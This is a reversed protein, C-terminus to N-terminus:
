SLAPGVRANSEIRVVVLAYRSRTCDRRRQFKGCEGECGYGCARLANKRAHALVIGNKTAIGSEQM